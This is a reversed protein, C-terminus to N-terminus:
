ESAILVNGHYLSDENKNKEYILYAEMKSKSGDDNTKYFLGDQKAYLKWATKYSDVTIDWKGARNLLGSEMTTVEGYRLSQFGYDTVNLSMEKSKVNIVLETSSKRGYSDYAVSDVTHYGDGTIGANTGPFFSTYEVPTGSYGQEVT